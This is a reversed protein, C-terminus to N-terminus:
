FFLTNSEKIKILLEECDKSKEQEFLIELLLNTDLLYM